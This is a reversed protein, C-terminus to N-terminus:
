AKKAHIEGKKWTNLRHVIPKRLRNVAGLTSPTRHCPKRHRYIVEGLIMRAFSTMPTSVTYSGRTVPKGCVFCRKKM